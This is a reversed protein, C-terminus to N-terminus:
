AGERPINCVANFKGGYDIYLDREFVNVITGVVVRGEFDGLWMFPSNRLLIEFTEKDEQSTSESSEKNSSLSSEQSRYVCSTHYDRKIETIIKQNTPGNKNCLQSNPSRMDNWQQLLNSLRQSNHSLSHSLTASTQDITRVLESYVYNRDPIEALKLLKDREIIVDKHVGFMLSLFPFNKEVGFAPKINTSAGFGIGTWATKVFYKMLPAWKTSKFAAETVENDYRKLIIGNEFLYNYSRRFYLVKTSQIHYFYVVSSRALYENVEDALIQVYPHTEPAQQEINSCSLSTPRRDQPYIPECAAFLIKKEYSPQDPLKESITKFRVPQGAIPKWKIAKSTVAASERFRSLIRVSM